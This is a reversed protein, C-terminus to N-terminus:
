NNHHVYQSLMSKFSSLYSAVDCNVSIVDKSDDSRKCSPDIMTSSPVNLKLLNPNWYYKLKSPYLTCEHADIRWPM